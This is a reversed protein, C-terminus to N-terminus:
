WLAIFVLMFYMVPSIYKFFPNIRIDSGKLRSELYDEGENQIKTVLFLKYGLDISKLLLAIFLMPSQYKLYLVLLFFYSTHFVVYMLPANNFVYSNYILIEKLSNGKQNYAEFLETCLYFIAIIEVSM